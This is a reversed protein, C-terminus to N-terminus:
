EYNTEGFSLLAEVHLLAAEMMLHAIRKEIARNLVTNKGDYKSKTIGNDSALNVYWVWTDITPVERIPEPVDYNGIRITKPKRRYIRRPFFSSNYETLTIWREGFEDECYWEWREWPKDTEMADKAYEMLLEAHPHKKTTSEVKAFCKWVSEANAFKVYYVGNAVDVAIITGISGMYVGEIVRVEQGTEFM